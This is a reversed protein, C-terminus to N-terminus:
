QVPLFHQRTLPFMSVVKDLSDVRSAAIYGMGYTILKMVFVLTVHELTQGKIKHVTSVYAYRLPYYKINNSYVPFVPIIVDKSKIFVVDGHHFSVTGAAGNVYKTRKCRNITIIVPLGIYLLMHSQDDGLIAFHDCGGFCHEVCATSIFREAARSICLFLTNPAEQLHRHVLEASISTPFEPSIRNANIM